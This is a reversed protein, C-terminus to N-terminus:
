FADWLMKAATIAIFLAFIKRLRNKDAMHAIAAGAPATFFAVPAILLFGLLNAYGLSYPPLGAVGFGAIAAGITGPISVIVGFLSATGVARHIPVGCLTMSTVGLAGGGIGMMTSVGGIGFPLLAGGVGGPLKDALRWSEKGFGFQAAIPLAVLGFILTLTQGRALGSLVSGALVGALMPWIWRRLLEWDVAGKKNHARLSSISTPIITALSTGVAIHMRLDEPVNMAALVHYMVPVVVIGGGVGLMGAVLGSVV